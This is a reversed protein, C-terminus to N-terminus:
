GASLVTERLASIRTLGWRDGLEEFRGAADGALESARATDGDAVALDALALTAWAACRRMQQRDATTRSTELLERALDHRGADAAVNGLNLSMGMRGPADDRELLLALARELLAWGADHDGARATLVGLNGLMMAEGRRDGLERRLALGEELWERGLEGDGSAGALVGLRNLVFATGMPDRAERFHALSEGLRERAAEVSGEARDVDGLAALVYGVALGADVRRFFQVTEEFYMRQRAGAPEAAVFLGVTHVRFFPEGTAPLERLLSLSEALEARATAADGRCHALIGQSHRVAAEVTADGLAGGLARSQEFLEQARDHRGVMYEYVGLEDIAHAEAVRDGLMRFIAVREAGISPLLANRGLRMDLGCGARLAEARLATSEPAAALAAVLWRDGEQFRGAAMWMPWLHVALQLAGPPDHGLAWRLAARLNDRDTELLRLADAPRRGPREPDSHRALQLYFAHHREALGDAEGAAAMHERAYQRVPELLRYRYGEPGSDAVVLSKDVLRGLLDAVAPEAVEGGATIAEAADLGFGGAFTSLRRFLVREDDTLLDHSWALTARMTQQRDLASRNGATLVALADGLREAIQAPSLAAVRAAALELALPMGDLRLCIEAVAAANADDLEFGPAVDAARECFLRVAECARLEDVAAARGRPPLALSPVRLTVEGPVRLAERSTALIRLQPCAGLLRQAITACAEILHECNDLILLADREALHAALADIPAEGPPLTLGLAAAIAAPLLAPDALGALEVLWVGDPTSAIRGRAAELAIRTKGAGGAGTLTLLRSRDLLRGVDRLERGRGVFTSLAVPLNHRDSRQAPARRPSRGPEVGDAGLPEDGRLITRYLAATQPDPDAELERRLGDRLRQYQALAQQRRGARVFGRMLARQAGEHLPDAVVAQQLTEIAADLDGTSGLLQAYEVLLGLHTEAVADRRAVAWPEYPDEPLLEGGHLELAARYDAPAGTARARAAAAEFADVDVDVTAGPALMLLDDRLPLVATPDAGAGELARRAVYLAQHFNNAAVDAPRESWLLEAARERHIRREPSLALLKLLSKAKRLRWAREPVAADGVRVAFAGFLRVHLLDDGM